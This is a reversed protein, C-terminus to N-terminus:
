HTDWDYSERYTQPESAASSDKGFNGLQVTRISLHERLPACGTMTLREAVLSHRMSHRIRPEPRHLLPPLFQRAHFLEHAFLSKRRQGVGLPFGNDAVEGAMGLRLAQLSTCSATLFPDPLQASEERAQGPFRRHRGGIGQDKLTWSSILKESVLSSYHAHVDDFITLSVRDHCIGLASASRPPTHHITM